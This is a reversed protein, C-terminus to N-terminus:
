IQTWVPRFILLSRSYTTVNQDELVKPKKKRSLAKKEGRGGLSQALTFPITFEEKPYIRQSKKAYGTKLSVFEAVYQLFCCRLFHAQVIFLAPLAAKQTYHLLFLLCSQNSIQQGSLHFTKPDEFIDPNVQVVAMGPEAKHLTPLIPKYYSFLELKRPSCLGTSIRAILM